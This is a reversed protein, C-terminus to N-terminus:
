PHPLANAGRECFDSSSDRHSSMKFLLIEHLRPTDMSPICKEHRNKLPLVESRVLRLNALLVKESGLKAKVSM